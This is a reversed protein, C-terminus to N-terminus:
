GALLDPRNAKLWDTVDTVLRAAEAACAEVSADDLDEGEYDSINRKRRFMDLVVIRTPPLDITHVLAQIVTMHHGPRNTDPRYGNAMLAALAAQMIGKYAADFRTEPTIADFGADAISRRAAALLRKIEETDPPHQKLQGIRLLNELSVRM